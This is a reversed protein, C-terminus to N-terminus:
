EAGFRPALTPSSHASEIGRDRREAERALVTSGLVLDVFMRSWRGHMRVTGSTSAASASPQALRGAAARSEGFALRRAGPAFSEIRVAVGFSGPWVCQTSGVVLPLGCRARM